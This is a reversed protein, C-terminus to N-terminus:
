FLVMTAPDELMGAVDALFRSGLAGDIHRHDFSLSLTVVDRPVVADDVVWPRKAITGVCLIASEGPNIIPTGGEIGFPGINTITFTGGTLTAPQMKGGRARETLDALAGALESLSMADADKINPVILGRASAAAIGLNVYNRLVLEQRDEDWWANVGPTRRLALLCARAVVLLPSVKVELRDRLRDVLSVTRSVDVTVWETVHPVEHVSRVMARGMERRVGRIPERSERPVEDFSPSTIIRAAHPARTVPKRPRRTTAAARPGYGVLTLQKEEVPEAQTEAQTEAQAEEVAAQPSPAHDPTSGAASDATTIRLIPTGVAVTEGEPVLLESVIGAFPSPLEVVSKATEIECVIDNVQVADGIAVRWTSLEAEVLGEGVDPLRFESAAGSM